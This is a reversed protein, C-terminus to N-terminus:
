SEIVPSFKFNITRYYTGEYMATYKIKEASITKFFEILEEKSSKPEGSDVAIRYAVPTHDNLESLSWISDATGSMVIANNFYKRSESSLVQFHTSIGGASDGFITIRMNDGYFQDINEHVWKLALQQDKLAMNGSYEPTGLSLFGFVGVRYNSTVLVVNQEILFDPGYVDDNGTGDFFGGGFIWFMVTLKKDSRASAPVYVNLNLCDESQPYDDNSITNPRICTNGFEFADLIKPTWPEVPEPAQNM